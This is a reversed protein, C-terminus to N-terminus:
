MCSLYACVQNIHLSSYVVICPYKFIVTFQLIDINGPLKIYFMCLSMHTTVCTHFCCKISLGWLSKRLVYMFDDIFKLKLKVYSSITNEIIVVNSQVVAWWTIRLISWFLNVIHFFAETGVCLFMLGAKEVYIVMYLGLKEIYNIWSDHNGGEKFTSM